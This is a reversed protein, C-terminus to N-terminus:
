RGREAASPARPYSEPGSSRHRPPHRCRRRGGRAARHGGATAAPSCGESLPWTVSASGPEGSRWRACGLSGLGIPVARCGPLASATMASENGMVARGMGRGQGPEAGTAAGAVVVGPRSRGARNRHLDCRCRWRCGPAARSRKATVTKTNRGPRGDPQARALLPWIMWRLIWRGCGESSRADTMASMRSRLDLVHVASGLGQDGGRGRFAGGTGQSGIAGAVVRDPM